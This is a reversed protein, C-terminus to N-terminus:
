TLERDESKESLIYSVITCRLNSHIRILHCMYFRYCLAQERERLNDSDLSELAEGGKLNLRKM